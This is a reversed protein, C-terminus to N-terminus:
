LRAVAQKTKSDEKYDVEVKKKKESKRGEKIMQQKLTKARMEMGKWGLTFSTRRSTRIDPLSESINDDTEADREKGGGLARSQEPTKKASTGYISEKTERKQQNHSKAMPSLIIQMCQM